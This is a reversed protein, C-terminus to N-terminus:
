GRTWASPHAQRIYNIDFNITNISQRHVLLKTNLESHISHLESVFKNPSHGASHKQGPSTTANPLHTSHAPTGLESPAVRRTGTMIQNVTCGSNFQDPFVERLFIVVHSIYLVDCFCVYGYFGQLHAFVWAPPGDLCVVYICM